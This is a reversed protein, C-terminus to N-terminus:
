GSDTANRNKLKEANLIKRKNTIKENRWSVSQKVKPKLPIVKKAAEENVSLSEITYSIQLKMVKM